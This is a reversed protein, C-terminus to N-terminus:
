GDEVMKNLKLNEYTQVKFDHEREKGALILSLILDKRASM